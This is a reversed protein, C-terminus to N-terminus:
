TQALVVLEAAQGRRVVLVARQRFVRAVRIMRRPDAHVLVHDERWRGLTGSAQVIRFRRLRVRLCHQMRLNWGEPMRRSMPNWATVLVACRGHLDLDPCRRGIHVVLGDVEYRTACYARLLRAPIM